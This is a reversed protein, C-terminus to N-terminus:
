DPSGMRTHGAWPKGEWQAAGRDAQREQVACACLALTVERKSRLERDVAERKWWGSVCLTASDAMGGLATLFTACFCFSGSDLADESKVAFLRVNPM